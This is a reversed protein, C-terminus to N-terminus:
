GLPIATTDYNGSILRCYKYLAWVVRNLLNKCFLSKAIIEAYM